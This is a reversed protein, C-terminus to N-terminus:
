HSGGLIAALILPVARDAYDTAFGYAKVGAAAAKQIEDAKPPRGPMSAILCSPKGLLAIAMALGGGGTHCAGLYYDARGQKVAMAADLDSLELVEVRDGGSQRVLTAIKKRDVQGGVAIRVLEVVGLDM